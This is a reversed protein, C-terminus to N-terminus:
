AELVGLQEGLRRLNAFQGEAREGTVWEPRDGLWRFLLYLRALALRREFEVPAGEPWRARRYESKCASDDEQSWDETLTALDIEGMAIAASEWDVPAIVGDCALVNEPYYEGHIITVPATIMERALAEFHHSLAQLWPRHWYPSLKLARRMWGLYYGADYRNIAGELEAARPENVRHFAAAWRAADVMPPPVTSRLRTANELYDIVLTTEGTAPDHQVDYFRPASTDLPELLRRYVEAEYPVGGRHGYSPEICASGRKALLKRVGGDALRCTVIECSYTSSYALPERGLITVAQGIM